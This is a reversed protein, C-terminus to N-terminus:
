KCITAQVLDVQVDKLGRAQATQISSCLTSRETGSLKKKLGEASETGYKKQYMKILAATRAKWAEGDDKGKAIAEDYNSIATTYNGSAANIDGRQLYFSM